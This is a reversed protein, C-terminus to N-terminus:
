KCILLGFEQDAKNMESNEAFHQDNRSVRMSSFTIHTIQIM